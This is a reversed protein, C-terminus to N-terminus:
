ASRYVTKRRLLFSVGAVLLLAGPVLAVVNLGGSTVGGFGSLSVGTPTMSIRVVQGNPQGSGPFIGFNSVYLAGDPGVTLGTPAVLGESAITTRTGDPAVRIVAGTPNGSLLGNAFMELVYLSGDPGFDIDLVNTFGSEFLTPSSGEVGRYVSAGGVPFPFGTLQSGYVANDPGVVLTTPVADMPIMTGSGPPFEVMTATFVAATTITGSPNIYLVDNAGADAVLHGIASSLLAFPNSDVHSGDPNHISEFGAVDVENQWTWDSNVGVLQGFNIGAAGLPGDPARIAPDAGLGIIVFLNGSEDFAVDHPGIANQGEMGAESLGLSVMDSVLREQVDDLVRSIGGTAGYCVEGEPGELCPGEGGFGAEAIYLGGDSGFVLGRPNNLGSAVVSMPSASEVAGSPALIAAVIVFVSLIGVLGAAIYRKSLM